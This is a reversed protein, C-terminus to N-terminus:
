ARGDRWKKVVLPLAALAALGLLPGLVHAEFLVGLDPKAGRDLVGGLGAGISTFVATGPIIGVFTTWVFTFLRVSLLAPALNAIFFPVIPVLRMVLLFSVEGQEFERDLRNLWHGARARLVDRLSTRAALFVGTAGLTAALTTLLTGLATGFAFGGAITMWVAGPVSFAVLLAYGVVYAAASVLVNEDRWALLAERHDVLTEFGLYDRGFILGAAAGIAVVAIPAYRIWSRCVPHKTTGTRDPM